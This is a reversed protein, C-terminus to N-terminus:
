GSNRFLTLDHLRGEPPRFLAFILGNPTTLTHHTLCPIRKHGSYCARQYLDNCNPRAMRIKTCDIFGVCNEHPSGSDRIANAHVESRARLFEKRLSLLNGFRKHFLEINKWFIESSQSTHLGFKLECDYWKASNSLKYLVIESALVPECSYPKRNTIGYWGMTSSTKQIEELRFRFDKLVQLRSLVNFNFQVNRIEQSRRLMSRVNEHDQQARDAAYRLLTSTVGAMMGLTASMKWKLRRRITRQLPFQKQHMM